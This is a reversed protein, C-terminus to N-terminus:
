HHIISSPEALSSGSRLLRRRRFAFHCFHQVIWASRMAAESSEIYIRQLSVSSLTPTREWESVKEKKSKYHVAATREFYMSSSQGDQELDM